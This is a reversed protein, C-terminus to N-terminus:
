KEKIGLYSAISELVETIKINIVSQEAHWMTHQMTNENKVIAGCEECDSMFAMERVTASLAGIANLVTVTFM